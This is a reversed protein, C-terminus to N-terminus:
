KGVECFGARRMAEAAPLDITNAHVYSWLTLVRSLGADVIANCLDHVYQHNVTFTEDYLDM